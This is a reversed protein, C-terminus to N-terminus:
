AEKYLVKPTDPGVYVLVGSKGNVACQMECARAPSPVGRLLYALLLAASILVAFGVFVAFHRRRNIAKSTTPQKANMRSSEQLYPQACLWPSFWPGLWVM